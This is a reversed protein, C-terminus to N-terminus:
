AKVSKMAQSVYKKLGVRVDELKKVGSKVKITEEFVLDRCKSCLVGGFLGTPRKQTKTLKKIESNRGEPTGQLTKGCMGCSSKKTIDKIRVVKTEGSPVRVYKKKLRRESPRVM